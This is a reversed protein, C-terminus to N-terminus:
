IIGLDKTIAVLQITNNAQFYIKLKNIHKEITSKSSPSIGLEKFKAQMNDQPIGQSLYELIKIDYNDIENITKDKHIHQLEPSIYKEDTDWITQIATKLEVISHRGKIVYGDINYKDFLMKIAYSKDEISFAIIKIEPYLQKVTEILEQGSQLKEQRHDPKFSLDSILLQYPNNERHANKIKLLAEDCYKASDITTIHLENLVQVAAVDNFDIDDVILVKTFM